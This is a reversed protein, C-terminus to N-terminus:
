KRRKLQLILAVVAIIMLCLFLASLAYPFGSVAFEAVVNVVTLAFLIGIFEVHRAPGKYVFLAKKPIGVKLEAEPKKRRKPKKKKVKKSSEELSWCWL